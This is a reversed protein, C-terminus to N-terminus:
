HETVQEMPQVCSYLIERLDLSLSLGHAVTVHHLLNGRCTINVKSSVACIYWAASGFVTAYQHEKTNGTGGSNAANSM